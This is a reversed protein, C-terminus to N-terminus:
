ETDFPSFRDRYAPRSRQDRRGRMLVLQFEFRKYESGVFNERSIAEFSECVAQRCVHNARFTEHAETVACPEEVKDGTTPIQLREFAIVSFEHKDAPFNSRFSFREHTCELFAFNLSM